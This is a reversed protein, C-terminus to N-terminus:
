VNHHYNLLCIQQSKAHLLSTPRTFAKIIKKFLFLTVVGELLTRDFQHLLIRNAIYYYAIGLLCNFCQQYFIGGIDVFCGIVDCRLENFMFSCSMHRHFDIDHNPFDMISRDFELLSIWRIM